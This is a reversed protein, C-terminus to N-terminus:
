WAGGAITDALQEAAAQKTTISEIFHERVRAEADM